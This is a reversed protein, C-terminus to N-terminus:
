GRGIYNKGQLHEQLLPFWQAKNSHIEEHHIACLQVCNGLEYKGGQSGYVVRHLHLGPGPTGCKLCWNGDREIVAERLKKKTVHQGVRKGHTFRGNKEGRNDVGAIFGKPVPNEKNWRKYCKMTCFKPNNKLRSKSVYFGTGCQLCTLDKGTRMSILVRGSSKRGNSVNACKPSCYNNANRRQLQDSRREFTVNCEKCVASKLTRCKHTQKLAPNWQESLNM